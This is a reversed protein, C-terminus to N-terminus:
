KCLLVIESATYKGALKVTCDKKMYDSILLVSFVFALIAGIGGITTAIEKDM